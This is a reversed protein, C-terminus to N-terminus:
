SRSRKMEDALELLDERSLVYVSGCYSCKVETREQEDALDEIDEAGLTSVVALARQRGCACEFRLEQGRMAKYPGGLLAFGMLDDASREHRLLDRFAGGRLNDRVADLAHEPAEPFTQCLVGAARMVAGTTDLMVECALVSPLQESDTLYLELDSDIEGTHMQLVGQYPHELGLDRTIVMYGRLGVLHRVSPRGQLEPLPLDPARQTLCGRVRGDGRADVLVQGVPGGGRMQIRVREDDNKTLTALLCGATLARGIAVAEGGELGHRDCADRTLDTTVATVVRISQSSDIGRQLLDM